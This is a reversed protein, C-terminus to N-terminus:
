HGDLSKGKVGTQLLITLCNRLEHCFEATQRLMACKVDAQIIHQSITQHATNAVGSYLTSKQGLRIKGKLFSELDALRSFHCLFIGSLQLHALLELYGRQQAIM